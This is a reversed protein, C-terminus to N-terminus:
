GCIMKCLSFIDPCPQNNCYLVNTHPNCSLTAYSRNGSTTESGTEKELVLFLAGSTQLAKSDVNFLNCLGTVIIEDDGTTLEEIAICIADAAQPRPETVAMTLGTLSFRLAAEGLFSTALTYVFLGPSALQPEDKVTNFFNHDTLSCSSTTACILGTTTPNLDTQPNNDSKEAPQKQLHGADQLALGIAAVGIQSFLDLRGFRSGGKLSKLIAAPVAPTGGPWEPARDCRGRGSGSANVWGIGTLRTKIFPYSTSASDTPM